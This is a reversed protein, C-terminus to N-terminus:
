TSLVLCVQYKGGSFHWGKLVNYGVLKGFYLKWHYNCMLIWVGGLSLTDKTFCHCRQFSNEDVNGLSQVSFVPVFTSVM